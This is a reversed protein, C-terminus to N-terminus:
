PTLDPSTIGYNCIKGCNNTLSAAGPCTCNAQDKNTQCASENFKCIQPDFTNRELYSYLRYSQNSNSVVYVYNYSSNTDIPLIQAYPQWPSGWDVVTSGSTLDKDIKYEDPGPPPMSDPYKGHDQYFQELSKKIEALDSKRRSDNAKYRQQIPDIITILATILTTLVGMVILLEILTFASSFKKNM